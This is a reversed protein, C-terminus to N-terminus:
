LDTQIDEEVDQLKSTRTPNVALNFYPAIDASTEQSMVVVRNSPATPKFIVIPNDTSSSPKFIVNPNGVSTRGIIDKRLDITQSTMLTSNGSIQSKLTLDPNVVMSARHDREDNLDITEHSLIIEPNKAVRRLVLGQNSVSTEEVSPFPVASKRMLLVNEDDNTEDKLTLEPQYEKNTLDSPKMLLAKLTKYDPATYSIRKRSSKKSPQIIEIVTTKIEEEQNDEKSKAKKKNLHVFDTHRKLHANRNFCKGCLPCQFPKDGSHTRCHDDFEKRAYFERDCEPCKHHKVGLHVRKRHNILGSQAKFGAGCDVCLFGKVNSHSQMHINLVAKKKYRKGCVQCVHQGVESRSRGQQKIKQTSTRQLGANEKCCGYLIFTNHKLHQSFFM